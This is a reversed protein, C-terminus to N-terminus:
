VSTEWSTRTVSLPMMRIVIGENNLSYYRTVRTIAKDRRELPSEQPM